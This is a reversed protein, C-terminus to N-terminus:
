KELLKEILKPNQRCDFVSAVKLLDIDVWYIIKYNSEVLYRYERERSKLLEEKQGSKPNKELQLTRKVIRKVLKRALSSSGRNKYYEYIM